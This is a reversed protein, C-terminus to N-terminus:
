DFFEKTLVQAPEVVTHPMEVGLEGARALQEPAKEYVLKWHRLGLPYTREEFPELLPALSEWAVCSVRKTFNFIRVMDVEPLVIPVAERWVLSSMVHHPEESPTIWVVAPVFIEEAEALKSRMFNWRWVGELLSAAATLPSEPQAEALARCATRNSRDYSQRFAEPSYPGDGMGDPQPDDVGFRFTEILETLELEAELGFTHPRWYDLNLSILTRADEDDDDEEEEWAERHVRFWFAVGTDENFYYIRDGAVEYNDREFYAFLEEIHPPATEDPRLGLRYGMAALSDRQGAHTM